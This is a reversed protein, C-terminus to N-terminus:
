EENCLPRAGPLCRIRTTVAGEAMVEAAGMCVESAVSAAACGDSVILGAAINREEKPDCVNLEGDGIGVGGNGTSPVCIEPYTRPGTTAWPDDDVIRRPSPGFPKTATLTTVHVDEFRVSSRIQRDRECSCM